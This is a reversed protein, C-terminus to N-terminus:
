DVTVTITQDPAFGSGPQVDQDIIRDSDFVGAVLIFTFSGTWGLRKLETTAGEITLGVLEPMVLQNGRSVTLTVTSGAQVEAGGAPDQGLVAGLPLPADVEQVQPTLRAGSINRRAQELNTGTVDPVAVTESSVGVTITVSAGKTLASGAPPNQAVVHGVQAVDSVIQQGQPPSLVLGIQELSYQARVRDLGTLNPVEVAAGAGVDLRITTGRLAQSSPTMLVVQDVNEPTSEVPNRETEFGAADLIQEAQLVPTGVVNPVPILQSGSGFLDTFLLLLLAIFSAAVTAVLIWVGPRSM